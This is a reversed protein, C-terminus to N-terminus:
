IYASWWNVDSKPQKLLRWLFFNSSLLLTALLVDILIQHTFIFWGLTVSLMIACVRSSNIGWLERAWNWAIIVGLWGALVVPLRASFETSGFFYTSIAILWYLLPPKNLYPSGNLHPVIWDNRCIMEQGVMAFHSEHPEYFGYSGIGLLAIALGSALILLDVWYPSALSIKLSYYINRLSQNM